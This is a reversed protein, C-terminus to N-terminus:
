VGEVVCLRRSHPVGESGTALAATAVLIVAALTATCAIPHQHRARRAGLRGTRLKEHRVTRLGVEYEGEM